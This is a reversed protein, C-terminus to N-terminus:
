YTSGTLVSNRQATDASVSFQKLLLRSLCHRVLIVNICLNLYGPTSTLRCNIVALEVLLEATASVGHMERHQQFNQQSEFDTM